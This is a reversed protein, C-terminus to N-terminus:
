QLYQSLQTSFKVCYGHPHNLYQGVSIGYYLMGVPNPDLKLMMLRVHM